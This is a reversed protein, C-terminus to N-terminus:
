RLPIIVARRGDPFTYGRQRRNVEGAGTSRHIMGSGHLDKSELTESETALRAIGTPERSRWEVLDVIAQSVLQM